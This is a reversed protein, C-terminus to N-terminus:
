LLEIEGKSVLKYVSNKEQFTAPKILKGKNGKETLCNINSFCFFALYADEVVTKKTFVSTLRNPAVLFYKQGNRCDLNLPRAQYSFAGRTEVLCIQEVDEIKSWSDLNNMSLKKKDEPSVNLKIADSVPFFQKNYEDVFTVIENEYKEVITANNSSPTQKMTTSQGQEVLMVNASKNENNLTELNINTRCENRNDISFQTYNYQIPHTTAVDCVTSNSLRKIGEPNNISLLDIKKALVQIDKQLAAVTLSEFNAKEDYQAQFTPIIEILERVNDDLEKHIRGIEDRSKKISDMITKLRDCCLRLEENESM